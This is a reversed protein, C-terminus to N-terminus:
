KPVLSGIITTGAIVKVSAIGWKELLDEFGPHDVGPLKGKAFLVADNLTHFRVFMTNGQIEFDGHPLVKRVKRRVKRLAKKLEPTDFTIIM